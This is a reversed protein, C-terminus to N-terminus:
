RTYFPISGYDLDTGIDIYGVLGDVETIGDITDDLRIIWRQYTYPRPRSYEGTNMNYNTAQFPVDKRLIAYLSLNDTEDVYRDRAARSSWARVITDNGFGRSDRSGHASEASYYYRRM